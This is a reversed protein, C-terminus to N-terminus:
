ASWSFGLTDLAGVFHGPPAATCRLVGGSPHPIELSRAHLHLRREFSGSVFAAKGGYKGDGLIPTRLGDACHVRLQHTRGTRPQLELWTLRRGAEGLVRYDTRAAKGDPDDAIVRDGHAGASKLLTQAVSGEAEPPAGVVIAWYIKKADKDRFARTLARAATADRAVVLVGSTDKDLRHVLRPKEGGPPALAALMDDLNRRQGSGGQVALGPPKDIVLVADDEHLVRDALASADAPDVRVTTKAPGAPRDPAPPVRIRQGTELRRNGKARGGDVRVQGTRLWKQVLGHGVGPAQRKLWRDLREGAEAEAVTLTRAGSM